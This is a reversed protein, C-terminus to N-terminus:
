ASRLDQSMGGFDHIVVMGPWPEQGGPTSVYTPLEGRPTSIKVEAM